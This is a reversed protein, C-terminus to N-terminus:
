YAETNSILLDLHARLLLSAGLQVWLSSAVSHLNFTSVPQSLTVIHKLINQNSTLVTPFASV